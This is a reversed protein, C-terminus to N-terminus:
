KTHFGSSGILKMFVFRVSNVPTYHVQSFYSLLELTSQGGGLGQVTPTRGRGVQLCYNERDTLLLHRGAEVLDYPDCRKPLKLRARLTGDVTYVVAWHSNSLWGGCAALLGDRTVCLGTM